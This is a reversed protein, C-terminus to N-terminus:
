KTNLLAQLDHAWRDLVDSWDDLVTQRYLTATPYWPSKHLDQRWRFDGVKALAIWVPRALAGALHAFSTDTTMVLDCLTLVSAVDSLTNKAMASLSIVNPLDALIRADDSSINNAIVFFQIEPQALISHLLELPISRQRYIPLACTQVGTM